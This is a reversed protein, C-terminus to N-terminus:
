LKTQLTPTSKNRKLRQAVAQSYKYFWGLLKHDVSKGEPDLTDDGEDQERGYEGDQKKLFCCHLQTSLCFETTKKVKHFHELLGSKWATLM